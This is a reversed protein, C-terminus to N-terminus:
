VCQLGILSFTLLAMRMPETSAKIASQGSWSAMNETTGIRGRRVKDEFKNSSEEATGEAEGATAFSPQPNPGAADSDVFRFTM